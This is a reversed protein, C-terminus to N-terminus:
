RSVQLDQIKAEGPAVHLAIAMPALSALVRPDFWSNIEIDEVAAVLYEGPLLHPMVYRGATDLVAAFVARPLRDRTPQDAPFAIVTLDTAARGPATRVTGALTTPRDVLTIALDPIGHDGVELV